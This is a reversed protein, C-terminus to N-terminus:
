SFTAEARHHSRAQHKWSNLMLSGHVSLPCHLSICLAVNMMFPGFPDVTFIFHHVRWKMM